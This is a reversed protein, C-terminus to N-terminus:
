SLYCDIILLLIDESTSWNVFLRKENPEKENSQRVACLPDSSATATIKKPKTSQKLLKYEALENTVIYRVSDIKIM